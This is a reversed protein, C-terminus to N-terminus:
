KRDITVTQGEITYSFTASNRLAQLAQRLDEREFSGTFILSDLGPDALIIKVAYWREMRKALTEFTEKRFVMKDKLWATEIFSSDVPDPEIRTVSIVAERNKHVPDTTKDSATGNSQRIVIKENARLLIRREPDTTLSVEILGKILTAEVFSDGPYARVNFSTGLVKILVNGAHIILPLDPNKHIDFYAEGSLQMERRSVGFAKNYGFQCASNLIVTSSDPLNILTKSGAKTVIRDFQEADAGNPHGTRLLFYGAMGAFVMAALGASWLLLRKKGTKRIEKASSIEPEPGAPSPQLEAVAKKERIAQRIALLSHQKRIKDEAGPKFTLSHLDSILESFPLADQWESLLSHLERLEEETIEKNFQRTLLEWIRKEPM